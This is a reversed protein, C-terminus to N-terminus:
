DTEAAKTNISNVVPARSPCFYSLGLGPCTKCTFGNGSTNAKALTMIVVPLMLGNRLGVSTACITWSRWSPMPNGGEICFFLPRRGCRPRCGEPGSSWLGLSTGTTTVGYVRFVCSHRYYVYALLTQCHVFLYAKAPVQSIHVM